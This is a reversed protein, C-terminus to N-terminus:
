KSEILQFHIIKSRAELSRIEKEKEDLIDKFNTTEKNGNSISAVQGELERVKNEKIRNITKENSL